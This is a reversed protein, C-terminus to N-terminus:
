LVLHFCAVFCMDRQLCLIVKRPAEVSTRDKFIYKHVKACACTQTRTQSCAFVSSSNHVFNCSTVVHLVGLMVPFLVPRKSTNYKPTFHLFFTCLRVHFNMGDCVFPGKTSVNERRFNHRRNHFSNQLMFTIM